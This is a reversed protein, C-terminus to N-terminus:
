YCQWKDLLWPCFVTYAKRWPPWVSRCQRVSRSIFYGCVYQICGKTGKHFMTALEGPALRRGQSSPQPAGAGHYTRAKAAESHMLWHRIIFLNVWCNCDLAIHFWTVFSICHNANWKIKLQPHLFFFDLPPAVAVIAIKSSVGIAMVDPTCHEKVNSFIYKTRM